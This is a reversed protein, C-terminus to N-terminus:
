RKRGASAERGEAAPRPHPEHPVLLRLQGAYMRIAGFDIDCTHTCVANLFHRDHSVVIVINPFEILFEELWSISDLDLGNTPEDLLLIDPNGFLAQALLVRVKVGEDVEQMLKGHASETSGSGPCCSPRRPRPRGAAWSPSSPRWSARRATRGGRLFGGQRLAGGAGEHGRPARALGHHGHGPGHAGRVAFHDQKLVAMRKGAGVVIEGQTRSWNAPCSAQPVHVQGRRQGRHHRLLQGPHVQPQRGQLPHPRRLLLRLDSVTIM